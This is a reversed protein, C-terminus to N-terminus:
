RILLRSIQQSRTATNTVLVFYLGSQYRKILTLKYQLGGNPAMYSREIIQGASNVLDIQLKHKQIDNFRLTVEKEAPNPFMTFASQQLNEVNVSTIASYQVKGRPDTQKLRFYIKGNATVPVTYDFEYKVVTSQSAPIQSQMTGISNFDYGNISVEPTYIINNEEKEKIWNLEINSNSTKRASFSLRGEPLVGMPCYTYTASITVQTNLTVIRQTYRGGIGQALLSAIVDYNYVLSGSGIFLGFDAPSVSQNFFIRPHDVGDSDTNVPAAQITGWYNSLDGNAGNSKWPPDSSPVAPNYSAGINISPFVVATDLMIIGGLGPGSILDTRFYTIKYTIPAGVDNIVELLAYGLTSISLDVGMLTGLAPNFKIPAHLVDTLSALNTTYSNTVTQYPGGGSCQSFSVKNWNLLAYVIILCIRLIRLRM